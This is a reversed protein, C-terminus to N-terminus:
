QRAYLRAFVMAAARYFMHAMKSFPAYAFLFFVFVLHAFYIPYALMAIDALRTMESLVGTAMIVFIVSIFLWDYYNGIGAKERNKMRNIIVLSIGILLALASTNGLIKLPDTLPYPSEGWSLGFLSKIGFWENGYLYIMAWTTTIALGIFAYFVLFHSTGRGKTVDCKKFRKHALIEILSERISGFLNGRTGTCASMASWYRRIGFVFSVLAFIAASSFVIDIYPVPVFRSYVIEGNMSRPVGSLNGLSAIIALFIIVPVAFLLLLYKSDSLMNALPQISAYSRISIRRVANMVEGPKAGRPCYATCDSCQHCLWIDPNSLLRDKLGWQAHIMEKRPFPKDDPTVNCVVSCTACQFCKKLTDGGNKIIEKVFGLDPSIVQEAM